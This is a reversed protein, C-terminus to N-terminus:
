LFILLLIELCDTLSGRVCDAFDSIIANVIVIILDMPDFVIYLDHHPPIPVNVPDAHHECQETFETTLISFYM